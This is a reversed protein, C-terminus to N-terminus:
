WGASPQRHDLNHKKELQQAFEVGAARTNGM